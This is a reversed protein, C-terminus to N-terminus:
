RPTAKGVLDADILGKAMEQLSAYSAHARISTTFMVANGAAYASVKISKGDITLLPPDIAENWVITKGKYTATQESM